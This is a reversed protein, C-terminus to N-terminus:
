GRAATVRLVFGSKPELRCGTLSVSLDQTPVDYEIEESLFRVAGKLLEITM